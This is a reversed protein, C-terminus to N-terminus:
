ALGCGCYASGLSFSKRKAPEKNMELMFEKKEMVSFIRNVESHAKSYRRARESVKISLKQEEKQHKKMM